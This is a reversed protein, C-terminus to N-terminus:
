EVENEEKSSNDKSLHTVLFCTLIQINHPVLIIGGFLNNKKYKSKAESLNEFCQSFMALTELLISCCHSEVIGLAAKSKWQFRMVRIKEVYMDIKM